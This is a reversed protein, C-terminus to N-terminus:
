KDADNRKNPAQNMHNGMMPYGGFIMPNAHPQTQGPYIMGLPPMFGGQMGM